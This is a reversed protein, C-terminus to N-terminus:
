PQWMILGHNWFNYAPFSPFISLKSVTTNMLLNASKCPCPHQNLIVKKEKWQGDNACYDGEMSPTPNNCDRKWKNQRGHGCPSECFGVDRWEGWQGHVPFSTFNLSMCPVHVSYMSHFRRGFNKIKWARSMLVIHCIYFSYM